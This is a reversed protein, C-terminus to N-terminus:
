QSADQRKLRHRWRLLKEDATMLTANHAIATAAIIRDAPDGNLGELEAALIAIDGTLPLERVGTAILEARLESASKLSRLRGKAVLMALEWLSMTSIALRDESLAKDAIRLSQRGLGRDTTLWIAAHTDLVIM